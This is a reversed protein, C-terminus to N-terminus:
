LKIETITKIIKSHIQKNSALIDPSDIDWKKNNFDTVKGGAENVLLAGASVDWSNTGPILISDVRGTAVYALEIAASGLQRCDINNLKQHTYYKIARKIDNEKSGHCFTNIIKNKNINPIVIRKGNLYAGANKEAIYLENLIPALIIGLIIEKKYLLAVSISWLPNHISFNTTGDVPDIIWLYDSKKNNNGQEESLIQHDPFHQKIKKIIMKESLLDFKTIIEHESKMKIKKRDFKEYEKKLMEGALSVFEIAIQKIKKNEM